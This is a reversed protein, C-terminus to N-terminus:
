SKEPHNIYRMGPVTNATSEKGNNRKIDTPKYGYLEKVTMPVNTCIGRYCPRIGTVGKVLMLKLKKQNVKIGAHILLLM